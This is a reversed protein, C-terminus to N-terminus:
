KLLGCNNNICEKYNKINKGIYDNLCYCKNNTKLCDDCIADISNIILMCDICIQKNCIKCGIINIDNTVEILCNECKNM